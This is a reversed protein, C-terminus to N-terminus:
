SRAMHIGEFRGSKNPPRRHGGHRTRPLRRGAWTAPLPACATPTGATEVCLAVFDSVLTKAPATEAATSPAEGDRPPPTTIDPSGFRERLLDAAEQQGQRELVEIPIFTVIGQDSDTFTFVQIALLGIRNRHSVGYTWWVRRGGSRREGLQEVNLTEEIRERLETVTLQARPDSFSAGWYRVICGGDDLRALAAALPGFRTVWGQGSVKSVVDFKEEPVPPLGAERTAARVAEAGSGTDLCFRIFDEAVADVPKAAPSAGAPAFEEGSPLLDPVEASASGAGFLAASLAALVAFWWTHTRRTTRRNM